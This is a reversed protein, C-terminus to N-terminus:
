SVLALSNVFGVWSPSSLSGTSGAWCLLLDLIPWPPQRRLHDWGHSHASTDAPPFLIRATHASWKQPVTLRALCWKGESYGCAQTLARCQALLSAHSVTIGVTSGDKSTKYQFIGPYVVNDLIELVWLLQKGM